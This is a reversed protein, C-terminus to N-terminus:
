SQYAITPDAGCAHPVLPDAPAPPGASSGAGPSSAPESHHVWTQTVEAPPRTAPPAGQAQPVTASLYGQGTRNKTGGFDHFPTGKKAPRSADAAAARLEDQHVLDIPWEENPPFPHGAQLLGLQALARDLATQFSRKVREDSQIKPKCMEKRLYGVNGAM